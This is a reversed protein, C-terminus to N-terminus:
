TDVLKYSYSHFEATSIIELSDENCIIKAGVSVAFTQNKNISIPIIFLQMFKILPM